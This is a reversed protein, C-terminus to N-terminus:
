GSTLCVRCREVKFLFGGLCPILVWALFPQRRPMTLAEFFVVVVVVKFLFGEMFPVFCCDPGFASWCLLLFTTDIVILHLAAAAAGSIRCESLCGHQGRLPVGCAHNEKSRELLSHHIGHFVSSVGGVSIVALRLEGLSGGRFL